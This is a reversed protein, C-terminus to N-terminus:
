STVHSRGFPPLPPMGDRSNVVWGEGQMNETPRTQRGDGISYCGSEFCEWINRPSWGDGRVTTEVPWTHRGDGSRSPIVDWPPGTAADELVDGVKHGRHQEPVEGGVVVVAGAALGACPVACCAVNLRRSM